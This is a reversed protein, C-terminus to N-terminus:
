YPGSSTPRGDCGCFISKGAVHGAVRFGGVLFELPALVDSASSSPRWALASARQPHTNLMSSQAAGDGCLRRRDTAMFRAIMPGILKAPDTVSQGGEHTLLDAYAMLDRHLAAPLELTIKVPKDDALPGLKLKTM